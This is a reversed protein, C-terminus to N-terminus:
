CVAFLKLSLLILSLTPVTMKKQKMDRDDKAKINEEGNKKGGM